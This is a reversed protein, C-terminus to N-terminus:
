LLVYAHTCINFWTYLCCYMYVCLVANVLLCAFCVCVCLFLKTDVVFVVVVVVVVIVVVSSSSFSVHQLLGLVKVDHKQLRDFFFLFSVWVLALKGLRGNVTVIARTKGKVTVCAAEEALGRLAAATDLVLSMTTQAQVDNAHVRFDDVTPAPTSTLSM